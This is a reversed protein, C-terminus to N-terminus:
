SNSREFSALAAPFSLTGQPLYYIDAGAAVARVGSSGPVNPFGGLVWLVGAEDLARISRVSCNDKLLANLWGPPLKWSAFSRLYALAAADQQSMTHIIYIAQFRRPAQDRVYQVVSSGLEVGNGFSFLGAGSIAVATHGIPNGETPGGEIVAIDLGSPENLNVPDTLCYGYLNSDGGGFGILDKATWRGTEPDYDRAGFRVLGTHRDYLGGAFTFPQFGPNSDFLLRGFASYELQQAIEGTTANVVLRGSGLHDTVLRYTVGGKVLYSPVHAKAAYVFTSVLAGAGDLEAVIRGGSWLFGQVRTGNVKKGVRRNAADHLYTLAEGGPLDAALLAGTVSYHFAATAGAQTKTALEGNGAYTYSRDGATLLRDQDDFTATGSGWEDSWATRNSNPDYSYTEIPNSDKEVRTLRGARDYTYAYTTGGSTETRSVIRGAADRTFTESFLITSNYRATESVLEGYGNFSMAESTNGLTNGTPLGSVADYALALAGAQTLQGDRNRAFATTTTTTGVTVKQEIAEFFGNYTASVSGSVAGNWTVSLPLSGDYTFALSGGWPDALSTLNGTSASYSPTFSGEPTITSTLRGSVPDYLNQITQGDPRTIQTVQHDQNYTLRTAPAPVGAVAPPQYETARGAEDYGFGHDPRGPPVTGALNGDLDYAFGIARGDPYTQQTLRGAADWLFSMVRGVPDTVTAPYGQANYTTTSHRDGQSVQAPRGDTDYEYTSALLGPPQSEILRGVDDKVAVSQRGEPSTVKLTRANYDYESSTTRDGSTVTDRTLQNRLDAPPVGPVPDPRPVMQRSSTVTNALGSPLTVTVTSALPALMGFRPDPGEKSSAVSGDPYHTTTTGDAGKETVVTLGESTTTTRKEGGSRSRESDFRVSRGLASSRMTRWASTLGPAEPQEVRTFATFGGLPDRDQLLRGDGDWTFTTLFGRPSTMSTMLGDSSYAFRTLEGAPNTVPM